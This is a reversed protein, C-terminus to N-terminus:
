QTTPPHTSCSKPTAKSTTTKNPCHNKGKNLLSAQNKNLAKWRNKQNFHPKQANNLITRKPRLPEQSHRVNGARQQEAIALDLDFKADLNYGSFSSQPKPITAVLRFEITAVIADKQITNKQEPL